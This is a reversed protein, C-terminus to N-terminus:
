SITVPVSAQLIVSSKKLNGTSEGSAWRGTCLAPFTEESEGLVVADVGGARLCDEPAISAHHGGMVVISGTAKAERALSFAAARWPTTASIAILDVRAHAIERRASDASHFQCDLITVEHNKRLLSAITLIGLSPLKGSVMELSHDHESVFHPDVLLIRM